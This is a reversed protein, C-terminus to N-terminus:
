VFSSACASCKSKWCGARCSCYCPAPVRSEEVSPSLPSLPASPGVMTGPLSPTRPCWGAFLPGGFYVWLRTVFDTESSKSWDKYEWIPRVRTKRVSLHTVRSMRASLRRFNSMRASWIPNYSILRVRSCVSLNRVRSIKFSIPRVGSKRASLYCQCESM